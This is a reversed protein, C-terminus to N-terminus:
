ENENKAMLREYRSIQDETIQKMNRGQRYAQYWDVTWKLAEPLPLRPFWGLLARAKSCDLRLHTAEHPEGATDRRSVVEGGWHRRIAEVVWKVPRADGEGPGFNWAGVFASKESWLREALMLYGCLPELVHQWPRVANPNRIVIPRNEMIGKVIDPVLRDEAWDGGGIVNGARATAIGAHDNGDSAFFSKRYAETVLEACGKSSSYPDHGGMRDNERYGWHWERNEYCKDSTIVVVGRVSQSKRVAELINVTGMVNTHYTEVPHLYSYRVIAQAALHFVIEPEHRAMISEVDNQNGIDGIVSILGEAVGGVEFLCPKTPPPLSYGMVNAGLGKLWSCLWGGKFGTHGTVLVRKGKWFEKDIQRVGLTAEMSKMPKLRTRLSRKSKQSRHSRWRQEAACGM